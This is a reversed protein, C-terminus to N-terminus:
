FTNFVIFFKMLILFFTPNLVRDTVDKDEDDCDSRGTGIRHGGTRQLAFRVEGAVLVCSDHM